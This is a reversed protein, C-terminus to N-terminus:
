IESFTKVRSIVQANITMPPVPPDMIPIQL